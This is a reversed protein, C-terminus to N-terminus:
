RRGSGHTRRQAVLRPPTGSYIMLDFTLEAPSTPSLVVHFGAHDGFASVERVIPADTRWYRQVFRRSEAVADEPSSLGETPAGLLPLSLLCPEFLNRGTIV